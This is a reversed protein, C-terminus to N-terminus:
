CKSADGLPLDIAYRPLAGAIWITVKRYEEDDITRLDGNSYFRYAFVVGSGRKLRHAYVPVYDHHKILRDDEKSSDIQRLYSADDFESNQLVFTDEKDIAAYALLGGLVLVLFAVFVALSLFLAKVIRRVNVM